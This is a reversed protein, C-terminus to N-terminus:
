YRKLIKKLGMILKYKLPNPYYSFSGCIREIHGNFNQKFGLVGDSGDFVGKVGLLNYRRIGAQIAELMIHEQLVAPAYFKNFETYSGSFLYVVEQKTFIFLSGALIVEQNDYKAIFEKAEEKRVEFTHYQSSFEKHQNKKKESNPNNELDKELQKLKLKLKAQDKELHNYYDKFNLSAVLFKAQDKFADYLYQYYELSKDDYERRDSTSSTIEKFLYLDRRQLEKISIGFTKAKKVLAKGKKSFSKLLNKESLGSLDKIYHWDNEQFGMSLGNYHYGAETFLTLIAQNEEGIPQGHDNYKQFYTYPKITLEFVKQSFAYDRVALLFAKLFTDNNYLPGYHIEMKLGGFVPASYLLASVQLEKKDDEFGVLETKYGRKELLEQMSTSQEFFRHDLSKAHEEFRDKSITVFPM